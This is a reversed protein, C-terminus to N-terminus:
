PTLSSDIVAIISLYVFGNYFDQTKNWRLGCNNLALNCTLFVQFIDTNHCPVTYM